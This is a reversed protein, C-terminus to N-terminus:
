PRAAAAPRTAAPAAPSPWRMVRRMEAREAAPATTYRLLVAEGVRLATRQEVSMAWGPRLLTLVLITGVASAAALAWPRWGLRRRETELQRATEAIRRAPIEAAATLAELRRETREALTDLALTMGQHAEAYRSAAWDVLEASNELLERTLPAVSQATTEAAQLRADIAAASETLQGVIRELTERTVLDAAIRLDDPLRALDRLLTRLEVDPPERRPPELAASPAAAALALTEQATPASRM